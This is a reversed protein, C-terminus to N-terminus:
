EDKLWHRIMYIVFGVCFASSGLVVAIRVLLSSAFAEQVLSHWLVFWLAGVVSGVVAGAMVQNLTHLRRSVRLWSLYAAVSLTAPGLIMTLYNTGLWYYLSLALITAAYFISQAHSSPMGPGSRLAPAPREHNLMKKLVMSLLSNGVAGLLFWMIEADRKWIAAFALSGAVLWKSMRNLAAEVPTWRSAEWGPRSPAEGGVIPDSEMSVGVEAPEGASGVKTMEVMRVGLRPSPRRRTRPLFFRYKSLPPRRVTDNLCPRPSPAPLLLRPM